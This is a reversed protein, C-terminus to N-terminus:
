HGRLVQRLCQQRHEDPQQHAAHQLEVPREQWRRWCKISLALQGGRCRYQHRLLAPLPWSLLQNRWVVRPHVDGRVRRTFLNFLRDTRRAVLHQSGGHRLFCTRRAVADDPFTKDQKEDKDKVKDEM